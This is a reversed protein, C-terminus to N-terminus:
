VLMAAEAAPALAPAVVAASADEVPGVPPPWACYCSSLQTATLLCLCLLFRKMTPLTQRPFSPRM